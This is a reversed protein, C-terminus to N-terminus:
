LDVFYIMVLRFIYIPRGTALLEIHVCQKPKPKFM